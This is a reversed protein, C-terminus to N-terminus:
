WHCMWVGPFACQPQIRQAYSTLIVRKMNMDLTSHRAVPYFTKRRSQVQKPMFQLFLDALGHDNSYLNYWDIDHM